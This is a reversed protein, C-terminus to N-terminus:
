LVPLWFFFVGCGHACSIAQLCVLMLLEAAVVIPYLCLGTAAAHAALVAHISLYIQAIPQPGFTLHLHLM